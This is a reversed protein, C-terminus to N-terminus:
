RRKLLAVGAAISAAGSVACVILFTVPARCNTDCANAQAGLVVVAFLWILVGLGILVAGTPRM